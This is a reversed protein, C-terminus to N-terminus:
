EEKEDIQSEDRPPTWAACEWIPIVINLVVCLNFLLRAVSCNKDMDEAAPYFEGCGWCLCHERHMGLQDEKVFVMKGHHEYQMVKESM